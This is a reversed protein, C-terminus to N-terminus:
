YLVSKICEHQYMCWYDQRDGMCADKVAKQTDQVEQDVEENVCAPRSQTSPPSTDVDPSYLGTVGAIRANSDDVAKFWHKGRGSMRSRSIRLRWQRFEEKEEPTASELRFAAKSFLDNAFAAMSVDLMAEADEPTAPLISISM